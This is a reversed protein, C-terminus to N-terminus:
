PVGFKGALPREDNQFVTTLPNNEIVDQMLMQNIYKYIHDKKGKRKILLHGM